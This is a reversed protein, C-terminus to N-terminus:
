ACMLVECESSCSMISDYTNANELKEQCMKINDVKISLTEIQKQLTSQYENLVKLNETKITMLEDVTPLPIETEDYYEYPDEIPDNKVDTELFMMENKSDINEIEFEAFFKQKYFKLHKLVLVLELGQLRTNAQINNNESIEEINICKLRLTEGNKQDYQLTSIYYEDILDNDINSNFWSSTNTSVIDIIKENLKDMYRSSVKDRTKIIVTNSTEKVRLIQAKKLVVVFPNAREECSVPCVYFGEKKKAKGIVLHELDSSQM